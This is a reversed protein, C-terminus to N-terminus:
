NIHPSIHKVEPADQADVGHFDYGVIEEEGSEKDYRYSPEGVYKMWAEGNFYYVTGEFVWGTKKAGHDIDMYVNGGKSTKGIAKKEIGVTTYEVEERSGDSLILTGNSM